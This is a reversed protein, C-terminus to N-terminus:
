VVKGLQLIKRACLIFVLFLLLFVIIILASYLHPSTVLIPHLYPSGYLPMGAFTIETVLSM